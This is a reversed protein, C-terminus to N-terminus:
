EDDDGFIKDITEDFWIKAKELWSDNEKQETLVVTGKSLTAQDTELTPIVVLMLSAVLALPAVYQLLIKRINTKKSRNQKMKSVDMSVERCRDCVVLHSMVDDRVKGLLRGDIFAALTEDDIHKNESDM